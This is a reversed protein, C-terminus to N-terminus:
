DTLFDYVGLDIGSIDQNKVMVSASIEKQLWNWNSDAVFYVSFYLIRDTLSPPLTLSWTDDDLNISAYYASVTYDADLYAYVYASQPLQGDVTVEATGSLTVTEFDIVGLNIGSVDQDKATVNAIREKQISWGGSGFHVDFYLIRDTVSPPITMTWTNDTLDITAYGIMFMHDDPRDQDQYAYLYASIQGKVNFDITGSLTIEQVTITGLAIGSVVGEKASISIGTDKEAYYGNVVHYRVTFYLTTATDFSQM